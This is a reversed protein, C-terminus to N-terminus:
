SARRASLLSEVQSLLYHSSCRSKDLFLNAGSALARARADERASMLVIPTRSLEPRARLEATLAVGDAEGLMVDILIVEYSSSEVTSLASEATAAAHVLFGGSELITRYMARATISDDVVLARRGQDRLPAHQEAHLVLWSPSLVLVLEGLALTAAGAYQEVNRLEQPLPRIVLEFDGVVEDFTLAARKAERRLVVAPRGNGLALRQRLGLLVGLDALKLWEGNFHLRQAGGEARLNEQRLVVGSEVSLLPIAFLQDAARVVVLPSSGLEVPVSLTFRTGNDPASDVEVRGELSAVAARVADLGVGRGSDQSVEDRTSFGPLFILQALARPDCAAVDEQSLIGREVAREAIRQHDLGCGDDEVALFLVNGAQEARVVVAGERHKGLREREAVSEIGHAVSNRVLHLMPGKLSELVRRDLALEDGVMSLRAEKGTQRCVDRVARHLPEFFTRLPQTSIALVGRELRSIVEAAEDVDARLGKSVSLARRAAESGRPLLRAFEDLERRRQDVRFRLERVREVDKMLPAIEHMSVRWTDATAAEAARPEAAQPQAPAAPGSGAITAEAEALRALPDTLSFSEPLDGTEGALRVGVLFADIAGLLADVATAGLPATSARVAALLDECRHTLDALASLGLTAAAGKLTHLSRAVSDFHAVSQEGSPESELALISRTINASHDEAEALFNRVIKLFAPNPAM